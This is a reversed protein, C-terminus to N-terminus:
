GFESYSAHGCLGPCLLGESPHQGRPSIDECLGPAPHDPFEPYQRPTGVVQVRLYPNGPNITGFDIIGVKVTSGQLARRWVVPVREAPIASDLEPKASGGEELFINAVDPRQAVELILRKPLTVRLSPSITFVFPQYGLGQLHEVLPRMAEQRAKTAEDHYELLSRGTLDLWTIGYRAAVREKIARTDVDKIWIGVRVLDSDGKAKLFEYLRPELTGYKAIYAADHAARLAELDVVQGQCDFAVVFPAPSPEPLMTLWVAEQGILGFKVRMVADATRLKERLISHTRSAYDLALERVQADSLNPCAPQAPAPPPPPTGPSTERASETATLPAVAAPGAPPSAGPSGRPRLLAAGGVGLAILLVIGILVAWRKTM